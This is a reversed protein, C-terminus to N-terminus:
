SHNEFSVGSIPGPVNILMPVECELEDSTPAITPPTMPPIAATTTAPRAMKIQRRRFHQCACDAANTTLLPTWCGDMPSARDVPDSM